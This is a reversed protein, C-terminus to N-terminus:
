GSRRAVSAWPQAPWRRRRRTSRNCSRRTPAPWPRRTRRPSSTGSWWSPGGPCRRSPSPPVPGADVVLLLPQLPSGPAGGVPRGPPILPVAGGPAGVGRVFRRPRASQVVVRAGLALARLAVLQAAPVGGVLLLRTTGPRFLRVTVAGGHRNTGVMLGSEGLSLELDTPDSTTGAPAVGFPLTAALGALHEGDLRRVDAGLDGALRRLAREAASLEAATWAALRVTLEAPVPAPDAGARPGVCLSVTTATAPLALLRSVLRHGAGTRRGPWRRLRWTTQALGGATMAPWSERVPAGADHHALEAVVRLAASGGLPRGTLPGLRRVIRRVTGALARQLEADSWGDVRM